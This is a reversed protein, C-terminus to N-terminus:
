IVKTQNKSTALYDWLIQSQITLWKFLHVILNVQNQSIALM